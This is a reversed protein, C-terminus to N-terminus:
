PVSRLGSTYRFCSCSTLYSVDRVTSVGDRRGSGFSTSFTGAPLFSTGLARIAGRISAGSVPGTLDRFAQQLMFAIDCQGAAVLEAGPSSLGQQQGGKIMIERCRQRAAPGKTPGYEATSLDLVPIWGIGRADKLQANANGKLLDALHSGSSQSTLGYRPHYQQSQANTMFLLSLLGNLDFIMVHNVGESAFALEISSIQAAIAGTDSTQHPFPIFRKDKVAIGRAKLSRELADVGAHYATTDYAIVGSVAPVTGTFYAQSVLSSGLEAGQRDLGLNGPELQLPYKDYTPTANLTELSYATPIGHKNMCDMFGDTFEFSSLAAAVHNDQTFKQCAASEKTSISQGSNSDEGFFVPKIRRGGLGGAKNVADILLKWQALEDGSTVGAAGLAAAAEARGTTYIFGITISTAGVGSVPQQALGGTTSTTGVASGTTGGTTGTGGGSTAGGAPVGSVSAAGGTSTAQQAGTSTGLGDVATGAAQQSVPVTSGCASLLTLATATAALRLPSLM